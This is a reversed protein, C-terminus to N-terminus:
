LLTGQRTREAHIEAEADVEYDKVIAEMVAIQRDALKQTMQGDAIRRPYVHKRYGVERKAAEWKDKATFDAM